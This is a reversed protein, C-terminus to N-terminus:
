EKKVESRVYGGAALLEEDEPPFRAVFSEIMGAPTAPCTRLPVGGEGYGWVRREYDYGCWGMALEVKVCFPCPSFCYMTPLDDVVREPVVNDQIGSTAKKEEIENTMATPM